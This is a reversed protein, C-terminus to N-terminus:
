FDEDEELILESDRELRERVDETTSIYTGEENAVNM